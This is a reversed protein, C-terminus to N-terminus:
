FFTFAELMCKRTLLLGGAQCLTALCTAPGPQSKWGRGLSVVPLKANRFPSMRKVERWSPVQPILASTVLCHERRLLLLPCASGPHTHPPSRAPYFLSLLSSKSICISGLSRKEMNTTSFASRLYFLLFGKLLAHPYNLAL